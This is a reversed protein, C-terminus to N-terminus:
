HVAKEASRPWGWLDPPPFHMRGSEYRIRVPYDSAQLLPGDLDVFAASGALLAAPAMALSSGGMCGVMVRLGAEAIFRHASLAETLGGCKDLKINAVQYKGVLNILSATDTFSEDACLPVPGDYGALADEEHKALPQEILAVNLSEFKDVLAFLIEPSWSQNPDVILRANPAIQNVTQLAELPHSADLKIKLLPYDAFPRIKAPLESLPAISITQACEITEFVELQCRQLVSVGTQQAELDWMACDVACRAGGAPLIRALAVRDAGAEIESRIGELDLMMSEPTEGDSIIGLAEGRGIHGSSDRLEVQLAAFTSQTGRSIRFPEKLPWIARRLAMSVMM